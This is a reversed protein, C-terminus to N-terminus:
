CLLNRRCLCRGKRCGPPPKQLGVQDRLIDSRCTWTDVWNQTNGDQTHNDPLTGKHRQCLVTLRLDQRSGKRLGKKARLDWTQRSSQFGWGSWLSMWVLLQDIKPSFPWRNDSMSWIRNPLTGASAVTPPVRPCASSQPVQDLSGKM